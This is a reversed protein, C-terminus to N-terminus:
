QLDLAQQEGCYRRYLSPVTPLGLLAASITPLAGVMGGACPQVLGGICGTRAAADAAAGM